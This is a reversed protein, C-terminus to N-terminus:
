GERLPRFFSRIDEVLLDPVEMAPFHRGGEFESFHPMVGSPDM